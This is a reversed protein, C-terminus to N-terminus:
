KKMLMYTVGFRFGSEMMHQQHNNDTFPILAHAKFYPNVFLSLGFKFDYKTAIGGVAGIGTQSDVPSNNDSIDFGTIFGFNVFFFKLFDARVTVPIDILTLNASYATNDMDPPLNPKVTITHKAYELGTEINLCNNIPYIYNIGFVYFNESNYSPAGDLEQFRIVDNTGFSAYSLGIKSYRSINNQIQQAIGQFAFFLVFIIPFFRKM